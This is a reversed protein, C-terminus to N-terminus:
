VALKRMLDACAQLEDAMASRGESRMARAFDELHRAHPEVGAKEAKTAKVVRPILPGPSPHRHRHQWVISDNGDGNKRTRGTDVIWNEETLESRRKRYSSEPTGPFAQVLDEDIFDERDHAFALVQDRIKPVRPRVKDANSHSTRPDSRRAHAFLDSAMPKETTTPRGYCFGCNPDDCEVGYIM